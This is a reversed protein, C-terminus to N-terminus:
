LKAASVTTDPAERPKELPMVDVIEYDRSGLGLAAAYEIVKYPDKHPGHLIQFPHYGEGHQLRMSLPVNEEIIRHKGIEDLTAQEVACIDDGAFIGIDPLVSMGTFGFCDCVPTIQTALNIFIARDPQFASLVHSVGIACAEQFAYYNEPNVTLAGEPAVDLCERCQVCPEYHRHIVEPNEKDAVLAEMPCAAMIRQRTEEDSCKEPFWYQDAHMTDHLAGRTAATMAGLALNKFQGGLGCSPHGKVHAFDILFDADMLIGGVRWEKMQKFSREFTRYYKDTLGACPIIPCGVTEHSYGREHATRCAYITDTLFPRGGGEMVVSVLGRVFVPHITSYGINGGLHMKIAVSKDKVRARLDLKELILGLKAPLTEEARLRNQRASGFYVPAGLAEEESIADSTNM